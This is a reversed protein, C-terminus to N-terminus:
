CFLNSSLLAIGFIVTLVSVVPLQWPRPVVYAHALLSHHSAFQCCLGYCCASCQVIVQQLTAFATLTDNSQM